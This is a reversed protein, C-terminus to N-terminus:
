TKGEQGLRSLGDVEEQSLRFTMAMANARAQEGNRAGGLPIAGKCMVWNLAVASPTVDYKGAVRKLEDILPDLQDWTYASGFRRGSPPPNSSSYKGTLRGM